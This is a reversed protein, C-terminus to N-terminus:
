FAFEFNTIELYGPFSQPAPPNIITDSGPGGDIVLPGFFPNPEDTAIDVFDTGGAVPRL